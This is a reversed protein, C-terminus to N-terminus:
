FIVDFIYERGLESLVRRQLGLHSARLYGTATLVVLDFKLSSPYSHQELSPGKILTVLYVYLAINETQNKKQQLPSSMFPLAWAAATFM